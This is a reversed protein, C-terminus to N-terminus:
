GPRGIPITAVIVESPADIRHQKAPQDHDILDRNDHLAFAMRHTDLFNPDRCRQKGGDHEPDDDLVRGPRRGRPM